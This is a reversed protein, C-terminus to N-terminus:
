SIKARIRSLQVASVGIYSAIQYLPILNLLEPYNKIFALYRESADKTLFDLERREKNIFLEEILHLLLSYIQLQDAKKLITPYHAQSYKLDSLAEIAFPAGISRAMSLTSGMFCPAKAFYKTVEKGDSTLVFYRVHGHSLFFLNQNIEEQAFLLEGKKLTKVESFLNSFSNRQEESGYPLAQKLLDPM